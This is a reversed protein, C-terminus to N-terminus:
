FGIFFIFKAMIKFLYIKIPNQNIYINKLPLNQIVNEILIGLNKLNKVGCCIGKHYDNVFNFIYILYKNKNKSFLIDNYCTLLKIM